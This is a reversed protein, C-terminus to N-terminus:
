LLLRVDLIMPKQRSKRPVATRRVSPAIIELCHQRLRVELAAMQVETESQAIGQPTFSPVQAAELLM